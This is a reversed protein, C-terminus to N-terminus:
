AFAKIREAKPREGYKGAQSLKSISTRKVSANKIVDQLNWLIHRAFPNYPLNRPHRVPRVVQDSNRKQNSLFIMDPYEAKNIIAPLGTYLDVSILEVAGLQM